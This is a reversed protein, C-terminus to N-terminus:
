RAAQMLPLLVRYGSESSPTPDPDVSALPDAPATFASTNGAADTLTATLYRGKLDAATLAAAFTGDSRATISRIFYKGEDLADSYIEVHCNPCGIGQVENPTVSLLQPPAIGKNGGSMLRIGADANNSISNERLQNGTGGQVTIGAAQNDYIRNNQVLANDTNTIVIGGRLNCESWPGSSRGNDFVENGAVHANAGAVCIGSRENTEVTNSIIQTNSGNLMIGSLPHNGIVNGPGVVNNDGQIRVGNYENPFPTAGDAGVGIWNGAVQNSSSDIRVGGFINAAIVNGAGAVSGGILNNSADFSIQIGYNRNPRAVSNGRADLAIGVFNGQVLNYATDASFIYIGQGFQSSADGNGAIINRAAPTTGGILNHSSGNRMLIGGNTNGLPTVGDAALGIINGAITSDTTQEMWIGYDNGSIVNGAGAQAGGITVHSTNLLLVGALSNPQAAMGDSDTGIWNGAVTTSQTDTGSILMGSYGNGAIINRAAPTTGGIYTHTPGKRLEIGAAGNHLLQTGTISTYAAGGSILMGNDGNERVVCNVIQNNDAAQDQVVIGVDYFHQVILGRIVNYSSTITLGNDLAIADGGHLVIVPDPADSQTSGDLTVQGRALPPLAGNGANLMITWMGNSYGADTLPISFAITVAAGPPTANAALLAERLSVAGDAGPDNRLDALSSVAGDVRDDTTTVAIRDTAAARRIQADVPAISATALCLLVAIGFLVGKRARSSRLHHIQFVM